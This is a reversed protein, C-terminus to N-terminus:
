GVRAWRGELSFAAVEKCGSPEANKFHPLLGLGASASVPAVACAGVKLQGVFVLVWKGVM